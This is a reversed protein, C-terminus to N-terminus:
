GIESGVIEVAYGGCEGGLWKMTWITDLLYLVELKQHM